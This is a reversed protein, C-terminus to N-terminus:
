KNKGKNKTRDRYIEGRDALRVRGSTAETLERSFDETQGSDVCVSVEVEDSYDTRDTLVDFREFVSLIKKHDHYSVIATVMRMQVMTVKHAHDIADKAARTYARLLGGTGLLTGGFYRTVVVVVDTLQEKKLLELIPLGATGQPEGDDSYRAIQEERLLYAYVHHKADHYRRRVGEIVQLAQEEGSVPAILGIFTSNKEIFESDAASGITLYNM